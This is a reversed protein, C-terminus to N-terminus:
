KLKKLFIILLINTLANFQLNYELKIQVTDNKM